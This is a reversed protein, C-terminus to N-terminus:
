TAAPPDNRRLVFAIGLSLFYLFILALSVALQSSIEPGPTAIAGVVFSLLIAWRSFKVLQRPTVLNALM